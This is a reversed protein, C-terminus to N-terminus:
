FWASGVLVGGFSIRLAIPDRLEAYFDLHGKLGLSIQRGLFVDLGANPGVGLHSWSQDGEFLLLYGLAAGVWPRIVEQLFLFRLGPRV